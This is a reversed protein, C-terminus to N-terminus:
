SRPKKAVHDNTIELFINFNERCGLILNGLFHKLVIQFYVSHM